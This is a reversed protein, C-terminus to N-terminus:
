IFGPLNNLQNIIIYIITYNALFWASISLLWGKPASIAAMCVAEVSSLTTKCLYEKCSNSYLLTCLYKVSCQSLVVFANRALTPFHTKKLHKCKRTATINSIGLTHSHANKRGQQAWHMTLSCALWLTHIM